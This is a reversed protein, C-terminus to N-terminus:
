NHMKGHCVLFCITDLYVHQICLPDINFTTVSLVFLHCSKQEKMEQCKFRTFTETLCLLPLIFLSVAAEILSWGEGTKFMNHVYEAM